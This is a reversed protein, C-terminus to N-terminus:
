SVKELVIISGYILIGGVIILTLGIGRSTSILNNLEKILSTANGITGSIEETLGKNALKAAQNTINQVDKSIAKSVLIYIGAILSLIGIITVIITTIVLTGIVNSGM